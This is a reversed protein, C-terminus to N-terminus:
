RCYSSRGKRACSRCVLGELDSQRISRESGGPAAGEAQQTRRAAGRCGDREQDPVLRSSGRRDLWPRYPGVPRGPKRLALLVISDFGPTDGEAVEEALKGFALLGGAILLTAWLPWVEQGFLQRWGQRLWPAKLIALLPTQGKCNM